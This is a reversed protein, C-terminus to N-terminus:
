LELANKITNYKLLLEADKNMEEKINLVANRVTAHGRGGLFFGIKAYSLKDYCIYSFFCRAIVVDRKRSKSKMNSVTVNCIEAIVSAMNELEEETFKRKSKEITHVTNCVAIHIDLWTLEKKKLVPKNVPDLYIKSIVEAAGKLMNKNDVLNRRIRESTKESIGNDQIDFYTNDYFNQITPIGSKLSRLLRAGEIEADTPKRLTVEKQRKEKRPLLANEIGKRQIRKYLSVRSIGIKEALEAVTVKEGELEPFYKSVGM